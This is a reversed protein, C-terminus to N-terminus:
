TSIRLNDDKYAQYMLKYTERKDAILKALMTKKAVVSTAILLNALTLLTLKANLL